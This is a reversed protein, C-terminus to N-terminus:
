AANERDIQDFIIYNPPRVVQIESPYGPWLGSDIGRRFLERAEAARKHGIERWDDDLVFVAPLYPPDKEVAIFAFADIHEGAFELASEYHAGQIHYGHEGITKAFKAPTAKGHVTKLDVGVRRNPGMGLFDFRARTEVGTVPDTGFVSAEPAGEQELLIRASQHALVAEAMANVEDYESQKIPVQGAARAKAIFAKAADTSAAGNKALVDAPIVVIEWGTGLVKSHAATGVDFEKRHVRPHSRSFEFRAPAELLERAGTSSLAPHRHYEEEDLGLIIGEFTFTATM